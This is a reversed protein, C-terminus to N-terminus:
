DIKTQCSYNKPLFDKTHGLVRYKKVVKGGILKSFIQREKHGKLTKFTSKLDQSLAEAFVLRKRVTGDVIVGKLINKVKTNPTLENKLEKNRKEVLRLYKKKYKEYKKKMSSNKKELLKIKRYASSRNRKVQKRGRKKQLSEVNAQQQHGNLSLPSQPPTHNECFRSAEVAAKIRQRRTKTNKNWQKRKLRKERETMDNVLKVKGTEKARLYIEHKKDKLAQHKVNDNKIKERRRKECERKRKLKEEQSM